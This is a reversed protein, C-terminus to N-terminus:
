NAWEIDNYEFDSASTSIAFDTSRRGIGPARKESEGGVVHLDTQLCYLARRDEKLRRDDHRVYKCDCREANCEQLPVRPAQDALFRKDGIAKIASCACGGYNISVAQYPNHLHVTGRASRLQQVRSPKVKGNSHLLWYATALCIIVIAIISM